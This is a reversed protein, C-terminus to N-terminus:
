KYLILQKINQVKYTICCLQLVEKDAEIDIDISRQDKDQTFDYAYRYISKFTKYDNLYNRLEDLKSQVKTTTDCQLDM